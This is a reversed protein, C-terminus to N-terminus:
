QTICSFWHNKQLFALDLGGSTEPPRNRVKGSSESGQLHASRPAAARLAVRACTRVDGGIEAGGRACGARARQQPPPPARESAQDSSRACATHRQCHLDRETVGRTVRTVRAGRARMRVDGGIETGGACLRCARAAATAASARDGSREIARVRHPTVCARDAGGM